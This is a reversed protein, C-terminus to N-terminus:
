EPDRSSDAIVSFDESINWEFEIADGDIGLLEKYSLSM